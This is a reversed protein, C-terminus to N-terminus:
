SCSTRQARAQRNKIHESYRSTALTLSPSASGRWHEGSSFKM